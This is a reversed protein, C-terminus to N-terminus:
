LGPLALRGLYYGGGGAVQGLNAGGFRDLRTYSGFLGLLGRTPDRWFLHGSVAGFPDGGVVGGQLDVQLGTSATLPTSFAGRAGGISQHGYSGGFADAKFNYGDVAPAFFAAPAKTYPTPSYIDAAGAHITSLFVGGVVGSLFTTSHYWQRIAM